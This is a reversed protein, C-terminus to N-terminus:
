QEHREDYWDCLRRIWWVAEFVDEAEQHQYPDPGNAAEEAECEAYGALTRLKEVKRATLKPKNM